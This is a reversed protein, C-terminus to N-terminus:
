QKLIDLDNNIIDRLDKNQNFIKLYKHIMQDKCSKVLLPSYRVVGLQPLDIQYNSKTSM